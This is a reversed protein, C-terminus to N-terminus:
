PFGQVSARVRKSGVPGGGTITKRGVAKEVEPLRDDKAEPRCEAAQAELQATGKKKKKGTMGGAKERVLKKLSEVAM